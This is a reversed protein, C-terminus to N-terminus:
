VATVIREMRCKQRVTSQEHGLNRFPLFRKAVCIQETRLHPTQTRYFSSTGIVPGLKAPLGERLFSALAAESAEVTGCYETRHLVLSICGDGARRSYMSLWERAAGVARNPEARTYSRSLSELM